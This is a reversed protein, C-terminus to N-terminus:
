PVLAIFFTAQIADNEWTTLAHFQQKRFETPRESEGGSAGNM